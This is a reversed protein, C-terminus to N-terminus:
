CNKKNKYMMEDAKKLAEGFTTKKGDCYSYGMSIGFAEGYRSKLQEAERHLRDNLKKLKDSDRRIIACLEDGGIRYCHGYKGYISYVANATDKLCADGASHGYTDNISKFKDIDFIMVCMNSKINEGSREFCRRNLLRTIKDVQNVVSARNIYLLLNGIAACMFDVRIDSYIIQIGVGFVLFCLVLAMVSNFGAQYRRYGIVMCVFCYIISASAFVIYLWYLSERHYINGSDISFVWGNLMALIEFVTHCLVFAYAWKIRNVKGYAVAASIGIAPVSCFEVLKAAKHLWILSPDAGNTKTGTWECVAAIGILLCIGIIEFKNKKSVLRNGTVEAINIALTFVTICVIATYLDFM